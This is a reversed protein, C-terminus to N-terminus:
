KKLQYLGRGASTFKKDKILTQNVIGRFNGSNSRYGGSLVAEAIDGVRMPKGSGRLTSELMQMLSKQNKVRESSRGAVAGGGLARIQRDLQDMKKQLRSREKLKEALQGRRNQLMRELQAISLEGGSPPRPM